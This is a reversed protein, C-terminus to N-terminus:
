KLQMDILVFCALTFISNACPLSFLMKEFIAGCFIRYGQQVNIFMKKKLIEAHIFGLHAAAHFVGGGSKQPFQFASGSGSVQAFSLCSATFDTVSSPAM